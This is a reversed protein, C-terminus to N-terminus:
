RLLGLYAAGSPCRDLNVEPEVCMHMCMHGCMHVCVCLNRITQKTHTRACARVRVSREAQNWDRIIEEPWCLFYTNIMIFWWVWLCRSRCTTTEM